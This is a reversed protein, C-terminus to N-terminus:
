IRGRSFYDKMDKESLHTKGSFSRNFSRHQRKLYIGYAFGVAMGVLHAINGVGSPFFIGGIDMLAWVVGAVWFPMPIAFFFLVRLNPMLVILTALIGMIAGSAGLAANYFQSSVLAAIIGSAFYVLLFKKPGIRREVIGGFLVLAYMNFLLHAFGGHMFMHTILIWPRTFMDSSLLMFNATLSPIMLQLLFAAVNIGALISVVSRKNFNM